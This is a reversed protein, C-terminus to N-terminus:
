TPFLCTYLRVYARAGASIIGRPASPPVPAMLHPVMYMAACNIIMEHLTAHRKRHECVTACREAQMCQCGAACHIIMEHLTAHRKRHECVTACREAQM